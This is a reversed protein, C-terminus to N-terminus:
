EGKEMLVLNTGEPHKKDKYEEVVEWGDKQRREVNNVHVLRRLKIEKKKSEEKKRAMKM